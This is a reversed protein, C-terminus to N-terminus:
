ITSSTLYFSKERKEDGLAREEGSPPTVANNSTNIFAARAILDCLGPWENENGARIETPKGPISLLLGDTPSVTSDDTSGKLPNGRM